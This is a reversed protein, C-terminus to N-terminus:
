DSDSWGRFAGDSGCESCSGSRFDHDSAWKFFSDPMPYHEGDYPDYEFEVENEYSEALEDSVEVGWSNERCDCCLVTIDSSM